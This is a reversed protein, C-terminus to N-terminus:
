SVSHPSGTVESAPINSRSLRSPNWAPSDHSVIRRLRGRNRSTNAPKSTSATASNPLPSTARSSSSGPIMRCRPLISAQRRFARAVIASRSPPPRTANMSDNAGSVVGCGRVMVSTGVTLASDVASDFASFFRPKANTPGVVMYASNSATPITSM